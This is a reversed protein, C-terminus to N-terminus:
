SLESASTVEIAVVGSLRFLEALQAAEEATKCHQVLQSAIFEPTSKPYKVISTWLTGEVTYMDSAYDIQFRQACM